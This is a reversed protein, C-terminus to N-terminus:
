QGARRSSDHFLSPQITKIPQSLAAWAEALEQETHQKDAEALCERVHALQREHWSVSHFKM